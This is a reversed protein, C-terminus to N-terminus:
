CNCLSSGKRPGCNKRRERAFRQSADRVRGLTGNYICHTARCNKKAIKRLMASTILLSANGGYQALYLFVSLQSLLCTMLWNGDIKNGNIREYVFKAPNEVATIKQQNARM